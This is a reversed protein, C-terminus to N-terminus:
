GKDDSRTNFKVSYGDTTAVDFRKMSASRALCRFVNDDGKAIDDATDIDDLLAFLFQAIGELEAIRAHDQIAVEIAADLISQSAGLYKNPIADDWFGQPTSVEPADDRTPKISGSARMARLEGLTATKDTMTM